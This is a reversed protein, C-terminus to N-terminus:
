SCKPRPCCGPYVLSEDTVLKCNPAIGIPSCSAYTIVMRGEYSRCSARICGKLYWTSGESFVLSERDVCMGPLVPNDAYLHQLAGQTVAAALALALLAVFVRAM